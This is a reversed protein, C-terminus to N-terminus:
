VVSYGLAMIGIVTKGDIGNGFITRFRQGLRQLSVRRELVKLVSGRYEGTSRESASQAAEIM